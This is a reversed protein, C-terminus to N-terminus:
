ASPCSTLEAIFHIGTVHADINTHGCRHGEEWEATAQALDNVVHSLERNAAVARGIGLSGGTVLANRGVIGLDM